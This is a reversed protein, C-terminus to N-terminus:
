NIGVFEVALGGRKDGMEQAAAERCQGSGL